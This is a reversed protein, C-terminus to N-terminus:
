IASWQADTFPATVRPDEHIRTVNMEFTLESKAVDALGTVPAASLPLAASALPIHGEGALLGSTADLGIWGAGPIYAECWAHLDTFDREPGSPGDLSKQDAALQILYGSVFRSAIGFQRLVQVRLWASDRCSGQ